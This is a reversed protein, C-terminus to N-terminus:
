ATAKEFLWQEYEETSSDPGQRKESFAEWASREDAYLDCNRPPEALAADMKRRLELINVTYGDFYRKVEKLAARLKAANGHEGGTITATASNDNKPTKSLLAIQNKLDDVERKHASELQTALKHPELCKIEPIDGNPHLSDESWYARACKLRIADIIEAHTRYKSM